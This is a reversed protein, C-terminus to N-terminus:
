KYEAIDYLCRVELQDRIDDLGLREPLGERYLEVEKIRGASLDFYNDSFRCDTNKLSLEVSKAYAM